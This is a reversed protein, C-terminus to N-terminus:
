FEMEIWRTQNVAHAEVPAHKKDSRAIMVFGNVFNTNVSVFQCGGASILQSGMDEVAKRAQDSLKNDIKGAAALVIAKSHPFQEMVRLFEVFNDSHSEDNDTDFHRDLRPAKRDKFVVVVHLGNKKFETRVGDVVVEAYGGSSAWTSRAQILRPGTTIRVPSPICVSGIAFTQMATAPTGKATAVVADNKSVMTVIAYSEDRDCVFPRRFLAALAARVPYPLSKADQGTVVMAVIATGPVQQIFEIMDEYDICRWWGESYTRANFGVFSYELKPSAADVVLFSYDCSKFMAVKQGNILFHSKEGHSGGRARYGVACATITVSTATKVTNLLPDGEPNGSENMSSFAMSSLNIDNPDGESISGRANSLIGTTM